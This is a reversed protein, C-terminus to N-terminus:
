WAQARGFEPFRDRGVSGVFSSTALFYDEGVRCVTLDPYFGPIVPNEYGM